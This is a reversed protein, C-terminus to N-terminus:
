LVPLYYPKLDDCTVFVGDDLEYGEGDTPFCEFRIPVTPEPSEERRKQRDAGKAAPSSVLAATQDYFWFPKGQYDPQIKKIFSVYKGDLDGYAAAVSAIHPVLEQPDEHKPDLSM